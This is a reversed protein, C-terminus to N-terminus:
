DEPNENESPTDDSSEDSVDPDSPEVPEPSEVPESSDQHESSEDSLKPFEDIKAKAEALLEDIEEESTATYFYGWKESEVEPDYYTYWKFIKEIRAKYYNSYDDLDVYSKLEVTAANMYGALGNKKIKYNKKYDSDTVSVSQDKFNFVATEWKHGDLMVTVQQKSGSDDPALKVAVYFGEAPVGSKELIDSSEGDSENLIVKVTVEAYEEEPLGVKYELPKLQKTGDSVRITIIRDKSVTNGPLPDTCIVVGEALSSAETKKQTKFGIAELNQKAQEYTSGSVNPISVMVPSPGDSVILTVETGIELESDVSPSCNVVYGKAVESSYIHQVDYGLYKAELKEIAQQEPINKVKPVKTKTEKSNVYLKIHANSTIRKSGAEPDQRLVMNLPQASDYEAIVEFDYKYKKKVESIMQGVFTPVLAEDESNQKSNNMVLMVIFWAIAAVVLVAVFITVFKVITKARSAAIEDDYGSYDDDYSPKPETKRVDNISDVYKTPAKDVFYNYNFKISPDNRFDEIAELMEAANSYRQVPEKRMARLTIEELGVPIDPNVERLPKPEAQLQMIAVSVASEAEFPLKGTLMEYLMVGVSYIDAKGDTVTGKAQEPAIYHVSGIAKNTMTRTETNSIRAIGFDTVKITGDQLLMINQPKIDRHVVGKSHAHQLAQLIQVTFHVAEKWPLTKQQDIYEKLTIGDIYEMVIYQIMDGFSVDYVKVINPHSLVAIAKTETKFRRIFEENGLFEDKLIKIAVTKDDMSDYAKYVMAMGGVGILEQIEYRGDLRKGTYKDM